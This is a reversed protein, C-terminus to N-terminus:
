EDEAFINQLHESITQKSRQFLVDILPQSLGITGEVLRCEIRNQGDDTQYLIIQGTTNNPEPLQPSEHM